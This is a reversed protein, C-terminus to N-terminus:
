LLCHVFGFTRARSMESVFSEETFTFRRSQKGILPHPFEITVDLELRDCPYAYYVSAGDIIRVPERLDLFEPEGKVAALGAASLAAVFPAASEAAPSAATFPSGSNKSRRSGTRIM